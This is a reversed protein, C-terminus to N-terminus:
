RCSAPPCQGSISSYQPMHRAMDLSTECHAEAIRRAQETDHDHSGWGCILDERAGECVPTGHDDVPCIRVCSFCATHRSLIEEPIDEPPDFREEFQEREVSAVEDEDDEARSGVTGVTGRAEAAVAEAPLAHRFFPDDDEPSPPRGILVDDDDVTPSSSVCGTMPLLFAASAALLCLLLPLSFGTHM